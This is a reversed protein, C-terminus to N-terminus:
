WRRSSSRPSPPGPTTLHLHLEPQQPHTVTLWRFDDGLQVDDGQTFGLVDTHFALSEDLDRVWVSTLFVHSIM